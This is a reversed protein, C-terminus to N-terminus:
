TIVDFFKVSIQTLKATLFEDSYNSNENPLRTTASFNMLTQLKMFKSMFKILEMKIFTVPKELWINFSNPSIQLYM